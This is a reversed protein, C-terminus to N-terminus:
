AERRLSERVRAALELISYPKQLFQVGEELVGQGAIIDATYGSIFLCALEPWRGRLRESLERGNMGPMIVDTILLRVQALEAEEVALAAKPSDAELVRYGQRMLAECTLKRLGEDDEVVLLLEGQGRPARASSELRDDRVEEACRPLYIKFSTGHGPESYANIYGENQQVIGYVTALGLGTGRGLEKTTFFPEFIHKLVETAMGCGNDSVMLLIYDGAAAGFHSACYDDDLRVNRTEISIRGTGQIADRANVCLNALIQDLQSPDMRVPWLESSPMWTLEIDEGILRRLMKLMGEVTDNLDLVKPAVTQKRAFALLQRTLDASHRAAKLIEKLSAQIPDGPEILSLVLDSRGLIVGLMNNFDHAVGGALRGVVELKQAQLLQAHLLERAEEAHKRESIDVDMSVCGLEGEGMPMTFVTSMVWCATGDRRHISLERPGFPLGSSCVDQLIRHFAAGEEPSQAFEALTRGHVEDAKWGYMAESAPNWYLVRGAADYWQIAVHPANELNAQLQALTLRLVEDMRKRETIDRGEPIILAVRGAGDRVPKLSFDVFHLAGDSSRNTTEFRVLRGRAAEQISERLLAQVQADHTWWPCEWFPRGAVDERGVGAFELATRNAELLTGDASLLGIFGYCLDFIARAKRESELLAEEARIRETVDRVVEIAGSRRGQSDYLPAAVGWVHAGCGGNLHQIFSEAYLLNGSPLVYKYDKPMEEGPADLLDILIPRRQGLFPEAYVYDGHGLLAEKGVGTMLEAARNWAIVRKGSDIVFTADPLFEIIDLLRQREARITEEAQKRRRINVLMHAFVTLLHQENGTFAHVGQTWAFSVMGVCERESMLPVALMTRTGAREFLRRLPGPPLSHTDKIGISEGRRHAALDWDPLSLFPLEQFHEIQPPAGERCWEHTATAVRRQFDYGIIHARDAGVLESMEGLSALIQGDVSDLPLNIYTEAFRTLLSQFRYQRGLAEETRKHGTIDHFVAIGATVAGTADLVPAASVSIWHDRGQHDRILLEEGQFTEGRLVARSLPREEPPCPTGGPHFVRWRGSPPHADRGTLLAPDGGPIEMAAANASRIALDPAEAIVIGSAAQAVAAALGDFTARPGQSRGPGRV